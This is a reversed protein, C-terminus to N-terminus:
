DEMDGDDDSSNLYMMLGTFDGYAQQFVIKGDADFDFSEYLKINGSRAETSDTAPLTVEWTSYHRVSGDAKKTQPNVGPLLVPPSTVLKFDYHEWIEKDNAKMEDLSLSDKIAGFGTDLLIMEKSYMSYDMNENQWGELNALVTKSNKEFADNAANDQTKQCGIFIIPFFLITIISKM